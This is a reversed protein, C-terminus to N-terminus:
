SFNQRTRFSIFPCAHRIWSMNRPFDRLDFWVQENSLGMLLALSPLTYPLRGFSAYSFSTSHLSRCPRPVTLFANEIEAAWSLSRRLYLLPPPSPFTVEWVGVGQVVRRPLSECRQTWFPARREGKVAPDKTGNMGRRTNRVQANRAAGLLGVKGWTDPWRCSLTERTMFGSFQTVNM